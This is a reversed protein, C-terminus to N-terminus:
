FEHMNIQIDCIKLGGECSVVALSVSYTSSFAFILSLNLFRFFFTYVYAYVCVYRALRLIKAIRKRPPKWIQSHKQKIAKPHSIRSGM